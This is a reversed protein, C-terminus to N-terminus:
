ILKNEQTCTHFTKPNKKELFANEFLVFEQVKTIKNPHVVATRIISEPSKEFTPSPAQM